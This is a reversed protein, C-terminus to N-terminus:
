FSVPTPPRPKMYDYVNVFSGPGGNEALDEAM